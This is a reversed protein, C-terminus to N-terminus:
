LDNDNYKSLYPHTKKNMLKSKNNSNFNYLM